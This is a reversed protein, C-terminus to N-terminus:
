NGTIYKWTHLRAMLSRIILHIQIMMIIQSALIKSENKNYLDVKGNVYCRCCVKGLVYWECSVVLSGWKNQFPSLPGFIRLRKHGSNTCPLLYLRNMPSQPTVDESRPFNWSMLQSKVVFVQNIIHKHTRLVDPMCISNKFNGCFVIQNGTQHETFSVIVYKM